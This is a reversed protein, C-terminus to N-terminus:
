DREDDKLRLLRKSVALAEDLRGDEEAVEAITELFRKEWLRYGLAEAQVLGRTAAEVAAQRNGAAREVRALEDLCQCEVRVDGDQEGYHAGEELYAAANTWRGLARYCGGVVELAYPLIVRNRYLRANGLARLGMELAEQPNGCAALARAMNHEVRAREAGVSIALATELTAQSEELRKAYRQITSLTTLLDVRTEIASQRDILALGKDVAQRALDRRGRSYHVVGLIAHIDAQVVPLQGPELRALVQDCFAEARNFDGRWKAQWALTRLAISRAEDDHEDSAAFAREALRFSESRSAWRVTWARRNFLAVSEVVGDDAKKRVMAM